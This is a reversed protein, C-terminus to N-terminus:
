SKEKIFGMATESLLEAVYKNEQWIVPYEDQDLPHEADDSGAEITLGLGGGILTYWDKYGGASGESKLLSYGTLRSFAEADEMYNYNGDFGWYIERGKTHYSLTAQFNKNITLDRLARTEPESFPYPGIFNERAPYAINQEGRGWNADFNVNLDVGNINAKWLSFDEGGNYETLRARRGPPVSSLGELVLRAGDPNVLPVFWIEAEGRYSQLLEAVLRATIYERAHIAGHILARQPGKGKVYAFINKGLVSRGISVVRDASEGATKIVDKILM